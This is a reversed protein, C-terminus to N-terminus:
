GLCHAKDILFQHYNDSFKHHGNAGCLVYYLYKVHAPHLAAELSARGPNAIPTPPLGVRIRTNYPSKFRLDSSSLKGDPTPDVYLLTADIGLPMGRRLRNYIVASILARDKAVKAEREIMSAVIVIQYPTVKLQKARQKFPLTRAEQVFRDLMKNIVDKARTGHRAFDYTDPFLFGETPKNAPLYPPRAFGGALALRTFNKASIKLERHVRRAIQTIRYGEPITVKTVPVSIPSATLVEMAQDVTMGTTLHYTGALIADGKGNEALLWRGVWGGCRIVGKSALEDVVQSGSAGSQVTVTVPTRIADSGRCHNYYTGAAAVGTMLVFFAVLIAVLAGRHPRDSDRNRDARRPSPQEM